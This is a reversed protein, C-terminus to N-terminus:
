ARRRKVGITVDLDLAQALQLAKPLSFHHFEEARLRKFMVRRLHPYQKKAIRVQADLTKEPDEGPLAPRRREVEKVVSALVADRVEETTGRDKERVMALGENVRDCSVRNLRIEALVGELVDDRQRQIQGWGYYEKQM